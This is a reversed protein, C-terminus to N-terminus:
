RRCVDGSKTLTAANRGGLGWYFFAEDETREGRLPSRSPHPSGSISLGGSNPSKPPLHLPPTRGLNLVSEVYEVVVM